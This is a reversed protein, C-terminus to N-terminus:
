MSGLSDPLSQLILSVDFLRPFHCHNQSTSISFLYFPSHSFICELWLFYWLCCTPFARFTKPFYSSCGITRLQIGTPENESSVEWWWAGAAGAGKEPGTTWLSSQSDSGDLPVTFCLNSSGMRAVLNRFWCTLHHQHQPRPGYKFIVASSERPCWWPSSRSVCEETGSWLSYSISGLVWKSGQAMQVRSPAAAGPFWLEGGMPMAAAAMETASCDANEWWGPLHFVLKFWRTRYCGGVGSSLLLWVYKRKCKTLLINSGSATPKDHKCGMLSTPTTLPPVLLFAM